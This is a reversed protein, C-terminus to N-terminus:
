EDPGVPAQNSAPPPLFPVRLQPIDPLPVSPVSGGGPLPILPSAPRPLAPAEAGITSHMLYVNYTSWQSVSFYLDNGSSWPHISARYIYPYDDASILVTPETWPGTPSTSQRMVIGNYVVDTYIMVWRQLDSNYQVSVEGVGGTIMPAPGRSADNSWGSGVWYEWAGKDLVRDEPVRAVYVGGVRGNPTGYMYVYGGERALAPTQFNTGSDSNVWVAGRDKTWTAGNDDSFAIGSYNSTWSGGLEGWDRVSSYSMYQRAGVSVGSTPLTTIESGPAKRSTLVQSAHGPEDTVFSDFSMGTSLDRTTSVGLANARWDFGTAGENGTDGANGASANTGTALNLFPLAPFPLGAPLIPVNIGDASVVPATDSSQGTRRPSGFTDGFATLIQGNGNDWMVAAGTGAVGFRTDTEGTSGPGTIKAVFANTLSGDPVGPVKPAAPTGSGALAGVGGNPILSVQPGAAIGGGPPVVQPALSLAPLVPNPPVIMQDSLAQPAEVEPKSAFGDPDTQNATNTVEAESGTSCGAVLLICVVSAAASARRVAIGRGANRATGYIM